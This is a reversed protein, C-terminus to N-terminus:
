LNFCEAHLASTLLFDSLSFCPQKLYKKIGFSLLIYTQLKKM